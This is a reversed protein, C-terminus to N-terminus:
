LPAEAEPSQSNYLNSFPMSQGFEGRRPSTTADVTRPSGQSSHDRADMGIWARSDDPLTLSSTMISPLACASTAQLPPDFGPALASRAGTYPVLEPWVVTISVWIVRAHPSDALEAHCGRLARELRGHRGHAEHTWGTVGAGDPRALPTRASPPRPM